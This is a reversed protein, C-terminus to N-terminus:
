CIVLWDHMPAIAWLHERFLQRELGNVLPLSCEGYAVRHSESFRLYPHGEPLSLEYKPLFDPAVLTALMISLSVVLKAKDMYLKVYDYQISDDVEIRVLNQWLEKQDEAKISLYIIRVPCNKM